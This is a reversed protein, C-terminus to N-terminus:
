AVQNYSLRQQHTRPIRRAEVVTIYLVLIKHYESKFSPFSQVPLHRGFDSKCVARNGIVRNSVGGKKKNGASAGHIYLRKKKM